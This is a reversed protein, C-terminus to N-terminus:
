KSNRLGNGKGYAETPHEASEALDRLIRWRFGEVFGWLGKIIRTSIYIYMYMYIYVIDQTTHWIFQQIYVYVYMSYYPWKTDGLEQLSVRTPGM